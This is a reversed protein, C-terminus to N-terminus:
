CKKGGNITKLQEIKKINSIDESKLYLQKVYDIMSKVDNQDYFIIASDFKSLRDFSPLIVMAEKENACIFKESESKLDKYLGIFISRNGSERNSPQRIELCKALHEKYKEHYPNGLLVRYYELNKKTSLIDEICSMYQNDRTRSGTAVLIKEANKVIEIQRMILQNFDSRIIEINEIKRNRIQRKDLSFKKRVITNRYLYMDIDNGHKIFINNIKEFNNKEKPFFDTLERYAEVSMGIESPGVSNMIRSAMNIARGAINMGRNIDDFPVVIGESIGIRINFNSHCNCYGSNIFYDCENYSNNEQIRRQLELAFDLHFRSGQADTLVVAVGDGTPINFANYNKCLESTLRTFTKIVEFQVSTPRLSFKEIDTYVVQVHIPKNNHMHCGGLIENYIHNLLNSINIQKFEFNLSVKIYNDSAM